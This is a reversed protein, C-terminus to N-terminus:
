SEAAKDLISQWRGNGFTSVISVARPMWTPAHEDFDPMRPVGNEPDHLSRIVSAILQWRVERPLQRFKYRGAYIGDLWESVGPDNGFLLALSKQWKDTAPRDHEAAAAQGVTVAVEAAAVTSPNVMISDFSTVLGAGNSHVSRTAFLAANDADLQALQQRLDAIEGKLQAAADRMQSIRDSLEVLRAHLRKNEAKIDDYDIYRTMEAHAKALDSHYQNLLAIMATATDTPASWYDPAFERLWETLMEIQVKNSHADAQDVTEGIRVVAQVTVRDVGAQQRMEDVFRAMSVLAGSASTDDTWNIDAKIM